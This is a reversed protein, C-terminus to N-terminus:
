ILCIEWWLKKEKVKKQQVGATCTRLATEKKKVSREFVYTRLSNGLGPWLIFCLILLVLLLLLFIKQTSLHEEIVWWKTGRVFQWWLSYIKKLLMCMKFSYIIIHDTSTKNIKWDWGEWQQVWFLPFILFIWFLLLQLTHVKYYFLCVFLCFDSPNVEQMKGRKKGDCNGQAHFSWGCEEDSPPCVHWCLSFPFTSKHDALLYVCFLVWQPVEARELALAHSFTQPLSLSIPFWPWPAGIQLLFFYKMIHLSQKQRYLNRLLYWYHHPHLTLGQPNDKYLKVPLCLGGM